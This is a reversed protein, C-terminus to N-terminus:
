GELGTKQEIIETRRPEGATQEILRVGEDFAEYILPTVKVPGPVNMTLCVLTGGQALM